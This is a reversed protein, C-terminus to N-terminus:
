TPRVGRRFRDPSCSWLPRIEFHPSRGSRVLRNSAALTRSCRVWRYNAKLPQPVRSIFSTLALLVLTAAAQLIVTMRCQMQISPVVNSYSVALGGLRVTSIRGARGCSRGIDRGPRHHHSRPSNISRPVGCKAQHKSAGAGFM